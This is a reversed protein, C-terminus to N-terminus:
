YSSNEGIELGEFAFGEEESFRTSMFQHKDIETRQLQLCRLEDIYDFNSNIRGSPPRGGCFHLMERQNFEIDVPRLESKPHVGYLAM